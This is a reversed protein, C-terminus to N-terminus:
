NAHAFDKAIRATNTHIQVTDSLHRAYGGALTVAVPVGFQRATELVM